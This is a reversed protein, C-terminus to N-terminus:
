EVKGTKERHGFQSCMVTGVRRRDGTAEERHRHHEATALLQEGVARRRARELQRRRADSGIAQDSAPARALALRQQQGGSRAIKARRYDTLEVRHVVKGHYANGSVGRSM